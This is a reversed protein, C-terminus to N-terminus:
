IRIRIQGTYRGGMRHAILTGDVPDSRVADITFVSSQYRIDGKPDDFPLVEKYPILALDSVLDTIFEPEGSLSRQSARM